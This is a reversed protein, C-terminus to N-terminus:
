LVDYSLTVHGKPYHMATRLRAHTVPGNMLPRGSGLLVPVVCLRLEDVLGYEFLEDTIEFSGWIVVDHEYSDRIRPVVDSVEGRELRAPEHVGWQATALRRSFVHKTVANITAALPHDAPQADSYQEVLMSYTNAGLIMADVREFRALQDPFTEGHGEVQRFLSVDGDKTAVYGDISMNQEVVVRGM